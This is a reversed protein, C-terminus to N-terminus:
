PAGFGFDELIERAASSTVFEVFTAASEDVSVRGIPYSAIVDFEDPVDIGTVSSGAAIVDTAYVVGADAEGTVVKTVIGKVNEEFSVPNVTVGAKALAEATYAGIPVEPACTVFLISPDALDALGSIGLPNGPETVIQLRNTAFVISEGVLRDTVRDMTLTDASAFVDAPAGETIQTALASSAAFSFVVDIDPHEAEFAAEIETFPATLSSAAFVTVTSASGTSGGCASGSYGALAVVLPVALLHRRV